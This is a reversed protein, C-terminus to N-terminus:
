EDPDDPGAQCPEDVECRWGNAEADRVLISALARLRRDMSARDNVPFDVVITTTVVIKRRAVM